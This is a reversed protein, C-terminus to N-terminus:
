ETPIVKLRSLIDHVSRVIDDISQISKNKAFRGDTMYGSRLDVLPYAKFVKNNLFDDGFIREWVADSRQNIAPNPGCILIPFASRQVSQNCFQKWYDTTDEITDNFQMQSGVGIVIVIRRKERKLIKKIYEEALWTL